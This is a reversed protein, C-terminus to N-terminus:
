IWRRSAKEEVRESSTNVLKNSYVFARLRLILQYMDDKPNFLKMLLFYLPSKKYYIKFCDGHKQPVSSGKGKGIPLNFSEPNFFLETFNYFMYDMLHLADPKQPFQSFPFGDSPLRRIMDPDLNLFVMWIQYWPSRDHRAPHLPIEYAPRTFIYVGSSFSPSPYYFDGENIEADEDDIPSFLRPFLSRSLSIDELSDSLPERPSLDEFSMFFIDPRTINMLSETVFKSVGYFSFLFGPAVSTRSFYEVLPEVYLTQGRSTIGKSGVRGAQVRNYKFPVLPFVAVDYSNHFYTVRPKGKKTFLLAPDQPRIYYFLNCESFEKTEYLIDDSVMKAAEWLDDLFPLEKEIRDLARDEYEALSRVGLAPFTFPNNKEKSKRISKPSRKVFQRVANILM